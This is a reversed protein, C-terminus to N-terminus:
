LLKKLEDLFIRFTKVSFLKTSLQGPLVTDNLLHCLARDTFCLDTFPLYAAAWLIDNRDSPKYIDNQSRHKAWYVSQTWVYPIMSHYDSALFSRYEEIFNDEGQLSGDRSLKIRKLEQFFDFFSEPSDFCHSLRYDFAMLEGKLEENLLEPYDKSSHSKSMQNLKEATEDKKESIKQFKNKDYVPSVHVRLGECTENADKTVSSLPFSITKLKRIFADYVINTMEEQVAFPHLYDINTYELIAEKAESHMKSSGIEEEQLGIPCVIKKKHLLESLLERLQGYEHQHPDKSIGAKEKAMEVFCFSDLYVVPVDFREISAQIGKITDSIDFPTWKRGVM